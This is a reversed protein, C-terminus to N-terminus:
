RAQEDGGGRALDQAIAHRRIVRDLEDLAVAARRKALRAKERASAADDQAARWAKHAAEMDAEAQAADLTEGLGQQFM